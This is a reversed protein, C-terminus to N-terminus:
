FWLSGSGPLGRLDRRRLVQGAASALASRAQRAPGVRREAGPFDAPFRRDVGPGALAWSHRRHPRGPAIRPLPRLRRAGSIASLPRAGFALTGRGQITDIGERRALDPNTQLSFWVTKASAATLTLTELPGASGLGLVVTPAMVRPSPPPLFLAPEDGGYLAVDGSVTVSLCLLVCLGTVALM